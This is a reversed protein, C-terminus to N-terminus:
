IKKYLLYQFINPKQVKLLKIIFDIVGKENILTQYEPNINEGKSYYYFSKYNIEYNELLYKKKNTYYLFKVNNFM